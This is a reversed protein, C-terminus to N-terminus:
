KWGDKLTVSLQNYPPKAKSAKAPDFLWVGGTQDQELAGHPVERILKDAVTINNTKTFFTREWQQGSAAEQKRLARQQEEILTKEHSVLNM